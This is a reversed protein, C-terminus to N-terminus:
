FTWHIKIKQEKTERNNEGIEIFDILENVIIHNLENLNQYKKIIKLSTCYNSKKLEILEIEKKLSSQREILKNKEDLFSKNLQIFQSEDIVGRIKDLYLNKIVKDKEEIDRKIRGLEKNYLDYKDNIGQECELRSAASNGNIYNNLYDKIKEAVIDELLKLSISHSTCLKKGPSLAYLKCRLYTYQGSTVKLMTSGCDLCKVKSAFLHAKGERTTRIKNRMRKQVDSFTILDIIPEHTNEARIWEDRTTSIIKKSKYSVKKRKAQIMHGIYTESKLIRKVTTKNWLGYDDTKSLNKYNLGKGEKYKTPNPIGKDNLMFAIHQAGYGELYWTYIMKIVQAAEQDIILKNKDISDKEYGYPAFSGIFQGNRRKVDFVAKINESIDECYWENVLGNIQRSKKNGKELTDANDTVGIFRIGWEIFKYHLYKEVLEMDRTFRSQSKCLVINFKGAQADKILENFEPRDKDLGSYDDDSYIKYVAWERDLAFKTLLTKQNQISESDDAKSLKNRDEDSLRCYIAVINMTAIGGGFSIYSGIKDSM